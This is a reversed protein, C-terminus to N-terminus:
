TCTRCVVPQDNKLADAVINWKEYVPELIKDDRNFVFEKFEHPTDKQIGIIIASEVRNDWAMYCAVQLQWKALLSEAPKQYSYSNMTKFDILYSGKGPIDCKAIDAFGRAWWKHDQFRLEKEIDDKECFGLRECLIDQLLGHWFHGVFFNKHSTSTLEQKEAVGAFKAYLECECPACDSSPHFADDPEKQTPIDIEFKSPFDARALYNNIHPVLIEKKALDKIFSAM